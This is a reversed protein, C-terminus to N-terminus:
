DGAAAFSVTLLGDQGRFTLTEPTATWLTSAQLAALYAEEQATLEDSPCAARSGSLGSLTLRPGDTTYTGTYTNCGDSGSLTGDEGMTLTLTADPLPEVIAGRADQYRTLIWDGAISGTPAPVYALIPAGAASFFAMGSDLAGFRAVGNLAALYNSELAMADQECAMTTTAVLGFVISLGQVTYPSRFTNCGSEGSAIGDTLTMTARLGSPVDNLFSGDSLKVLLWERNELGLEPPLSAVAV